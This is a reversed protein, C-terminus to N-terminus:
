SFLILSKGNYSFITTKVNKDKCIFKDYIWSRYSPNDEEGYNLRVWDDLLIAVLIIPIWIIAFLLCVQGMINFPQNSYDWVGLGLWVNVILGTCFELILVILDGILVQLEIYMNFSYIENLLGILILCIGGLIFMSSHSYGRFLVEIQYYIAGGIEFIALYKMINFITKATKTM